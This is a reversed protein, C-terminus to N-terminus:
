VADVFVRDSKVPAGGRRDIGEPRDGKVIMVSELDTVGQVAEGDAAPHRELVIRITRKVEIELVLARSFVQFGVPKGRWLCWEIQGHAQIRRLGLRKGAFPIRRGDHLRLCRYTQRSLLTVLHAPAEAGADSRAFAIM